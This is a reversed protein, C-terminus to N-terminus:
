HAAHVSGGPSAAVAGTLAPHVVQADHTIVVGAVLEDELDVRFAGDATMYLLLSSINRGYM